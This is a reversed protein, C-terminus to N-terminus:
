RLAIGLLILGLAAAWSGLVRIAIAGWPAKLLAALAWGAVALLAAAAGAGAVALLASTALGNALGHVTGTGLAVIMALGPLAISPVAILVGVAILSGASAYADVLEFAAVRTLAATCFAILFAALFGAFLLGGERRSARQGALLGIAFCAVLHDPETLIHLAPELM